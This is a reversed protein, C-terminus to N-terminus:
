AEITSGFQENFYQQVARKKRFQSSGTAAYKYKFSDNVHSNFDVFLDVSQAGSSQSNNFFNWKNLDFIYEFSLENCFYQLEKAPDWKHYHFIKRFCSNWCVGLEEVEYHSTNLAGIYYTFIPLCFSKDVHLQVIDDANWYFLMARQMFSERLIVVILKSIIAPLFSVYKFSNM